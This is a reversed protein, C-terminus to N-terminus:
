SAASFTLTEGVHGTRWIDVCAEAMGVLNEEITAFVTSPVFGLDPSLVLNNRGYFLALDVVKDHGELGRAERFSKSFLSTAFPYYVVDGPIPTVTAFELPPEEEAFPLVLTYVENRAYTAHFADGTIPLASWVVDCTVPAEDELLRARCTVQRKDLTIDM